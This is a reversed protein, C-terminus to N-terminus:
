TAEGKHVMIVYCDHKCHWCTASRHTGDITLTILMALVKMMSFLVGEKTIFVQMKFFVSGIVYCDGADQLFNIIGTNQPTM